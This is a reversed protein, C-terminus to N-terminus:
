NFEQIELNFFHISNKVMKDKSQIRKIRTWLIQYNFLIRM